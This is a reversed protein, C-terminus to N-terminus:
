LWLAPNMQHSTELRSFGRRFSRASRECGPSWNRPRSSTRRRLDSPHHSRGNATAHFPLTVNIRGFYARETSNLIACVGSLIRCDTWSDQNIPTNKYIQRREDGPTYKNPSTGKMSGPKKPGELVNYPIRGCLVRTLRSARQARM